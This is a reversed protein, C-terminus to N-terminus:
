KYWRVVYPVPSVSVGGKESVRISIGKSTKNKLAANEAKLRELEARLDEDAMVREGLACKTREVPNNGHFLLRFLIFSGRATVLVHYKGNAWISLPKQFNAM